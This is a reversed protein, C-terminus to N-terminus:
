FSGFSEEDDDFPIVEEPKVMKKSEPKPAQKKQRPGTRPLLKEDKRKPATMKKPKIADGETDAMGVFGALKTVAHKLAQAYSNLEESASASQEASSSNSQVVKDMEAVTQNIQGIGQAQEKSAEEIEGVLEAVKHASTVVGDFAERTRTVLEHGEEINKITDEILSATNKAAEAARQALNRVEDAVVAFGAGAEGARAAEVAANLALLNTQFAIEDITKIIKSVEEGQSAIRNMSNAMEEMQRGTRGVVDKTEDMLRAAEQANDANKRTMTAMEEISSTTEELSAAQESTMEAVQVSGSSIQVVADSIQGSNTRLDKVVRSLTKAIARPILFAIGAGIALSVLLTVINIAKIRAAANLFTQYQSSARDMLAKRSAQLRSRVERMNPVTAKKFTEAAKDTDGSALAANIEELSRHLSLHQGEIGSFYSAAGPVRSELEKREPGYLFRGVACQRGDTEGKIKRCNQDSLGTSVEGFWSLEMLELQMLTNDYATLDLTERSQQVLYGSGWSGIAGMILLLGLVVLFGKSVKKGIRGKM